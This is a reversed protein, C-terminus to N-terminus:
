EAIGAIEPTERLILQVCDRALQLGTLGENLDVPVSSPPAPVTSDQIIHKGMNQNVSRHSQAAELAPFSDQGLNLSEDTDDILQKFIEIRARISVLAM